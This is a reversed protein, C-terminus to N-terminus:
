IVESFAYQHPNQYYGRMVRSFFEWQHWSGVIAVLPRNPPISPLACLFNLAFSEERKKMFVRKCQLTTELTPNDLAEKFIQHECETFRHSERELQKGLSYLFTKVSWKSTEFIHCIEDMKESSLCNELSLCDPLSEWNVAKFITTALLSEEEPFLAINSNLAFYLVEVGDFVTFLNELLLKFDFFRFTDLCKTNVWLVAFNQLIRPTRDCSDLGKFISQLPIGLSEKALTAASESAFWNECFLAIDKESAGVALKFFDIDNQANHIEGIVWFIRKGLMGTLCFGNALKYTILQLIQNQLAHTRHALQLPGGNLYEALKIAKLGVSSYQPFTDRILIQPVPERIDGETVLFQCNTLSCIYLRDLPFEIKEKLYDFNIIAKSIAKWHKKCPRETELIKRYFCYVEPVEELIWANWRTADALPSSISVANRDRMTLFTFIRGFLIGPLQLIGRDTRNGKPTIPQSTSSIQSVLGQYIPSQWKELPEMLTDTHQRPIVASPVTLSM